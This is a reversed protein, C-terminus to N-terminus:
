RVGIRIGALLRRPIIARIRKSYWRLAGRYNTEAIAFSDDMPHYNLQYETESIDLRKIRNNSLGHYIGYKLQDPAEITATILSALDSPTILDALFTQPLGRHIQRHPRVHGIRLCLISLDTLQIFASALAEGSAKSAGYLNIPRQPLQASIDLKPAYGRVVQISSMFVVRRVRAESACHFVHYTGVINSALLDPWNSHIKKVALHVVTDVSGFLPRIASQDTIDAMQFQQGFCLAPQRVDTLLLEYRDALQGCIMQAVNGAAGTILIRRRM